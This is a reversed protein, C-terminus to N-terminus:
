RNTSSLALQRARSQLPLTWIVELRSMRKKHWLIHWILLGKEWVM